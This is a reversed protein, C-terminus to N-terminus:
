TDTREISFTGMTSSSGDTVNVELIERERLSKPMITDLDYYTPPNGLADEYKYLNPITSNRAAEIAIDKFAVSVSTQEHLMVMTRFSTENFEQYTFLVTITLSLVIGLAVRQGTLERMATGVHSETQKRKSSSSGLSSNSGKKSKRLSSPVMSKALSRQKVSDLFNNAVSMRWVKKIDEAAETAHNKEKSCAKCTLFGIIKKFVGGNEEEQIAAIAAASMSSSNKSSKRRLRGPSAAEAAALEELITGGSTEDAGSGFCRRFWTSPSIWDPLWTFSFFRSSAKMITTARIFKAIRATRGIAVLLSLNREVPESM